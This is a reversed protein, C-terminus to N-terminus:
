SRGVMRKLKSMLGTPKAEIQKPKHEEEKVALQDEHWTPLLGHEELESATFRRPNGVLSRGRVDPFPPLEALGNGVFEAYALPPFPKRAPIPLPTIKVYGGYTGRYRDALDGYLKSLAEEDGLLVNAAEQRCREVYEEENPSEPLILRRKWKRNVLRRTTWKELAEDPRLIFGNEIMFLDPPARRRQTFEILMNGYEELRLARAYTTQIRECKVLAIALHKIFDTHRKVKPHARRVQPRNRFSGHRSFVLAISCQQVISPNVKILNYFTQAAM